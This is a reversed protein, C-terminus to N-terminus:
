TLLFSIKIKFFYLSETRQLTLFVSFDIEPRRTIARGSRTTAPREMEENNIFALIVDSSEDRECPDNEEDSGSESGSNPPPPPTTKMM